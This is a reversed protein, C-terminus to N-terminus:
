VFQAQNGILRARNTLKTIRREFQEFIEYTFTYSVIICFKVM